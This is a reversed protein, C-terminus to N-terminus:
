FNFGISFHLRYRHIAQGYAVDLKVPGVPTHMQVGVGYGSVPDISKWEDSVNGYDYFVGLSLLETLRHQYELSGIALYRQGIVARDTNLGLSRYGYGRLSGIGGARFLNESPIGFRSGANVVGFELRGILSGDKWISHQPLPQFGVMSTYFRSFTADSLLRKSAGSIEFKVGFGRTPNLMSDFRKLTWAKGLVLAKIGDRQGSSRFHDQEQQLQLSTFADIDRERQGYGVYANSNLTILGHDSDRELRGGFAVYRNAADYPTRFNAFARQRRQSMVVSAEMQLGFLNRDQFGVQGRIGDDTSYGLGYVLRHRKLEEVVLRIPVAKMDPDEQLALMDPVASISSFYGSDRLRQEFTQLLADTYADGEHFPQLDTVVHEPYRALGRIEVKGFAVRDGSDVVAMLRARASAADVQASSRAIRARLYGQQKMADILAAKGSQWQKSVFPDGVAMGFRQKLNALARNQTGQGEIQIDLASVKTRVGPRLVLRVGSPAQVDIVIDPEFYGEAQVIALVEDHLKAVLGEFQVPDYDTRQQWRGILTRERIAGTFDGPAEIDFRYNSHGLLASVPNITKTSSQASADAAALPGSSLAAALVLLGTLASM